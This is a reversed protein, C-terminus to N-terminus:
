KGLVGESQSSTHRHTTRRNPSGSKWARMMRCLRILNGNCENNRSRIAEIEPKPNTTRWSGGNNTDPYTFSEDTNDFVPVVEFTIGDTFPVQVVQGDAGINTTSYTKQISQRVAQLLASQGNGSYNNYTVYVSYPLRFVMDLDSFGQIATNRGYSGVYLSHATESNSDWFDANLRHTINRYRLSIISGDQVQINKCFLNFWDALGM